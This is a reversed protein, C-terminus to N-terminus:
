KLLCEFPMWFLFSFYTIVKCFKVYSSLSSAAIILAFVSIYTIRISFWICSIKICMSYIYAISYPKYVIYYVNSLEPFIRMPFHYFNNQGAFWFAFFFTFIKLRYSSIIWSTNAVPLTVTTIVRFNAKRISSIVFFLKEFSQM